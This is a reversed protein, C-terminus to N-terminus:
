DGMLDFINAFIKSKTPDGGCVNQQPVPVADHALESDCQLHPCFKSTNEMKISAKVHVHWLGGDEGFGQGWVGAKSSRVVDNGMVRIPMTPRPTALESTKTLCCPEVEKIGVNKKVVVACQLLLVYVCVDCIGM